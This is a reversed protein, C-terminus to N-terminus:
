LINLSSACPRVQSRTHAPQSSGKSTACIMFIEHRPVHKILVLPMQTHTDKSDM